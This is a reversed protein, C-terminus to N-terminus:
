RKLVNLFQEYTYAGIAADLWDDLLDLSDQRQILQEVENPILGPFRGCLIKLLNRRREELKGKAEGEAMWEKIVQSELMDFGELSRKWAMRRGALEAFILAVGAMDGRARRDAVAAVVTEKWRAMIAEDGGGAMLPVWWLLGPPNGGDRQAELIAAANDEAVNWILPAHRTGFGGPTTMDLVSDPCRGRLYVLGTLVRYKGKRDEGHRVRSRLVATEELTVDLKDPDHESQFELVLLTPAGGAPDDLAAVLDATRDVGGPLPLARTDLWERFRLVLGTPELLRTIVPGPAAHAAFRAAQDFTAM